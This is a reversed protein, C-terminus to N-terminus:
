RHHSRDQVLPWWGSCRQLPYLGMSCTRDQRTINREASAVARDRDLTVCVIGRHVRPLRVSLPVVQEETAVQPEGGYRDYCEAGLTLTVRRRPLRVIVTADGTIMPYWYLM